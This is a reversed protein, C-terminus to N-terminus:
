VPVFEPRVPVPGLRRFWEDGDFRKPLSTEHRTRRTNDTDIVKTAMPEAQGERVAQDPLQIEPGHEYSSDEGWKLVLFRETPHRDVGDCTRDAPGVPHVKVRIHKVTVELGRAPFRRQYQSLEAKAFGASRPSGRLVFPDSPYRGARQGGGPSHCSATSDAPRIHRLEHCGSGM